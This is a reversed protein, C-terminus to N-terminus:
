TNIIIHYTSPTVYWERMPAGSAEAKIRGFQGNWWSDGKPAPLSRLPSLFKPYLIVAHFAWVAFELIWLQIFTGLYSPRSFLLVNPLHAVLVYAAVASSITM